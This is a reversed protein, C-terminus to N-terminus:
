EDIERHRPPRSAGPRPAHVPLVAVVSGEKLVFELSHIIVGSAGREYGRQCLGSIEDRVAEIDMGKVRELYRIVAHDSVPIRGKRM